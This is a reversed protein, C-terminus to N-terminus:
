PLLPPRLQKNLDVPKPPAPAPWAIAGPAAVRVAGKEDKYLLAGDDASIMREDCLAQLAPLAKAADKAEVLRSASEQVKAVDDSVLGRLAEDLTLPAGEAAAVRCGALTGVIAVFLAVFRRIFRHALM